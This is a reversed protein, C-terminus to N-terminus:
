LKILEEQKKKFILFDNFIIFFNNAVNRKNQIDLRKNLLFRQNESIFGLTIFIFIVNM